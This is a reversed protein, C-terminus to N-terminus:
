HTAHTSFYTFTTHPDFLSVTHSSRPLNKLCLVNIFEGFCSQIISFQYDTVLSALIPYCIYSPYENFHELIDVNYMSILVRTKGIYLNFNCVCLEIIYAVHWVVIVCLSHTLQFTYYYRLLMIYITITHFRNIHWDKKLLLNPSDIYFKHNM